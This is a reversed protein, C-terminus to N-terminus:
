KFITSRLFSAIIRAPGVDIRAFDFLNEVLVRPHELGGRDAYGICSQAFTNAGADCRRLSRRVADDPPSHLIAAQHVCRNEEDALPSGYTM